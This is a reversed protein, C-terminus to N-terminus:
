LEDDVEAFEAPDYVDHAEDLAKTHVDSAREEAARAEPHDREADATAGYIEIGCAGCVLGAATMADSGGV